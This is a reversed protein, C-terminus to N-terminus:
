YTGPPRLDPTPLRTELPGFADLEDRISHRMLDRFDSVAMFFERMILIWIRMGYRTLVLRDGEDRVAGLLKLGAIEPALKWFFGPYRAEATRKDLSLGFLNMLMFYRLRDRRTLPQRRSIGFRGAAIQRNYHNLSFTSSYLIGDLYSMSGSGLGLYEENEIIYEDVTGSERNFCWASSPHYADPLSDLILRYMRGERDFDVEGMTRLMKRMTSEASMLPYFTAQSVEIDRTLLDIDKLLSNEDQHPLNFIMDANLTEFFGRAGELRKMVQASSGYKEYRDMQKLLEDDLSQIGVSVRTVGADRMQSMVGPTLDDPNTEISISQIPSLRRLLELTKAMEGPMVTPTGGGVYLDSFSYGAEHAMRIEQRLSEFYRVTKQEEFCVRHFSCFPCLVTCFPIHLYLMYKRAPDPPPLTESPQPRAFRTLRRSNHRFGATLLSDM